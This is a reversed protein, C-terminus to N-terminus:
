PETKVSAGTGRLLTERFRVEPLLRYRLHANKTPWFQGNSTISSKGGAMFDGSDVDFSFWAPTAICSPTAEPNGEEDVSNYPQLKIAIRGDDLWAGPSDFWTCPKAFYKQIGASIPLESVRGTAPTFLIYKTNWTSDTGWTWQSVVILLRTGAPSWQIKEIGNGDYVSGDQRRESQQQFAIRVTGIPEALYITTTNTCAGQPSSSAVVVGYARFGQKSDFVPTAISQSALSVGKADQVCEVLQTPLPKDDAFANAAACCFLLCAYWRYRSLRCPTLPIRMASTTVGQIASQTAFAPWM